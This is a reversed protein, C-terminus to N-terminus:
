SCGPGHGVVDSREDFRCLTGHDICTSRHAYRVCVDRSPYRNRSGWSSADSREGVAAAPAGVVLTEFGRRLMRLKKM